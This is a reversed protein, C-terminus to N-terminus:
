WWSTLRIKQITKDSKEPVIRNVKVSKAYTLGESSVDQKASLQM